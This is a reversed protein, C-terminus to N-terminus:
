FKLPTPFKRHGPFGSVTGARDCLFWKVKGKIGLTAPHNVLASGLVEYETGTGCATGGLKTVTINMTSYHYQGRTASTLYAWVVTTQAPPSTLSMAQAPSYPPMAPSSPLITGNGGSVTTQSCDKFSWTGGDTADLRTCKVPKVTTTKAAAVGSGVFAAAGVSVSLAGVVLALRSFRLSTTPRM